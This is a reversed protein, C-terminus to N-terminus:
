CLRRGACPASRPPKSRRNEVTSSRRCSSSTLRASSSPANGRGSPAASRLRSETLGFLTGAADFTVARIPPDVGLGGNLARCDLKSGDGPDRLDARFACFACRYVCFNTPNLHTNINYYVINGNQRERALNALEGVEHLPTERNYLFLGDDFSLREGAEVKDRVSKLRSRSDSQIM